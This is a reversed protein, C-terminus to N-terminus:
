CFISYKQFFDYTASQLHFPNGYMQSLAGFRSAWNEERWAITHTDIDDFRFANSRSSSRSDSDTDGPSPIEVVSESANSESISDSAKWKKM